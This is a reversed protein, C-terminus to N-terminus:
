RKARRWAASRAESETCFWREGKATDIRTKAYWAGGPVHYIRTGKRSINGKIRCDVGLDVLACRQATLDQRDTSCRAYGIRITEMPYSYSLPGRTSFLITGDKQYLHVDANGPPSRVMGSRGCLSQEVSM